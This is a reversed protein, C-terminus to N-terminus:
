VGGGSVLAYYVFAFFNVVLLALFTSYLWIQRKNSRGIIISVTIGLVPILLFAAPIINYWIRQQQNYVQFPPVMWLAVLAIEIGSIVITSRMRVSEEM